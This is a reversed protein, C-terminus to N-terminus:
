TLQSVKQKLKTMLLFSIRTEFCTKQSTIVQHHGQPRPPLRQGGSVIFWSKVDLGRLGMRAIVHILGGSTKVGEGMKVLKEEWFRANMLMKTVISELLDTAASASSIAEWIKVLDGM